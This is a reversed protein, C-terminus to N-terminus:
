RDCRSGRAALQEAIEPLVQPVGRARQSLPGAECDGGNERERNADPRIGGDERNDIRYQKPRQWERV